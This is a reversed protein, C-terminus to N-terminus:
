DKPKWTGIVRVIATMLFWSLMATLVAAAIDHEITPAWKLWDRVPVSFVIGAVVSFIARTVFEPRNKPPQFVLALIAGALASSAKIALLALIEM